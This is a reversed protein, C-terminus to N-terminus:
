LRFEMLLLVHILLPVCCEGFYYCVRTVVLFVYELMIVLGAVRRLCFAEGNAGSDEFGGLNVERCALSIKRRACPWAAQWRQMSGIAEVMVRLFTQM